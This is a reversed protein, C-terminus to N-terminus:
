KLQESYQALKSGKLERCFFIFEHNEINEM